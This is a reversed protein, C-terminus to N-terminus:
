AIYSNIKWYILHLYKSTSLNAPLHKDPILSMKCYSKVHLQGSFDPVHAYQLEHAHVHPLYGNLEHPYMCNLDRRIFTSFTKPSHHFYHVYMYLDVARAYLTTSLRCTDVVACTDNVWVLSSEQPKAHTTEAAHRRSQHLSCQLHKQSRCCWDMYADFLQLRFVVAVHVLVHIYM